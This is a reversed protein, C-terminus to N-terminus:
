RFIGCSTTTIKLRGGSVANELAKKEHKPKETVIVCVGKELILIKPYENTPGQRVNVDHWVRLKDGVKIDTYLANM